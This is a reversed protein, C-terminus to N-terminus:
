STPPAVEASAYEESLYDLVTFHDGSFPTPNPLDNSDKTAIDKKSIFSNNNSPFDIGTIIPRHQKIAVMDPLNAANPFEELIEEFDSKDVKDDFDELNDIDFFWSEDCSETSM